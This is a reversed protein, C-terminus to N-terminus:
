QLGCSVTAIDGEHLIDLVCKKFVACSSGSYGTIFSPAQLGMNYPFTILTGLEMGMGKYKNYHAGAVYREVLVGDVRGSELSKLLDSVTEHDLFSILYPKYIHGTYTASLLM